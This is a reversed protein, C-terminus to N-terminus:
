KILRHWFFPRMLKFPAVEPRFIKFLQFLARLTGPEISTSGGSKRVSFHAIL